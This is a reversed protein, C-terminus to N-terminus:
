SNFAVELTKTTPNTVYKISRFGISIDLAACRKTIHNLNHNTQGFLLIAPYRDPYNASKTIIHGIAEKWLEIAKVEIVNADTLLDIPGDPTPVEIEGGLQTQLWDRVFREPYNRTEIELWDPLLGLNHLQRAHKHYTSRTISLTDCIKAVTPRNGQQGTSHLHLYLRYITSPRKDSTLLNIDQNKFQTDTIIKPEPAVTNWGTVSQIWAEIGMTAFKRYAFLAAATKRPSEFAYYEVIAAVAVSPLWVLRTHSGDIRDDLTLQLRLDRGAFAELSKPPRKTAVLRDLLKSIAQHSVNCLRAVGSESTGGKGTDNFTFFEVGDQVVRTINM